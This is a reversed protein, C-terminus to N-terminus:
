RHRGRWAVARNTHQNRIRLGRELADDAPGGQGQAPAMHRVRFALTLLRPASACRRRLRVEGTVTDLYDFTLQKRHIDFGGVISPM